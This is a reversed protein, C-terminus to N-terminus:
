RTITLFDKSLILSVGPIALLRNFAANTPCERIAWDAVRWDLESAFPAFDIDGSESPLNRHRKVYEDRLTASMRIEAGARISPNCPVIEVDEEDPQLAGLRGRWYSQTAPGPGAGAEDEGEDPPASVFVEWFEQSPDFLGELGDLAEERQKRLDEEDADEESDEDDAESDDAESDDAESDDAESDGGASASDDDKEGDEEMDVDSPRRNDGSDDDDEVILDTFTASHELNAWEAAAEQALEVNHQIRQQRKSPSSPNPSLLM